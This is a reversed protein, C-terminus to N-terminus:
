AGFQRLHHDLHKWQLYDWEQSTLRGFFPHPERTLGAPGAEHFRRLEEILADREVPAADVQTCRFAPDTPLNRGFPRKSLVMRKALRGFLRWFLTRHLTQEGRAVRLPARCHAFMQAAHMRGWLPPRDPAISHIRQLTRALEAADFLSNM